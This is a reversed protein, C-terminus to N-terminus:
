DPAMTVALVAIFPYTSACIVLKTLPAGAVRSVKFSSAAANPLSALRLTVNVLLIVLASAFM